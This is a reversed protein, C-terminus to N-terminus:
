SEILEINWSSIKSDFYSRLSGYRSRLKIDNSKLYNAHSQVVFKYAEEVWSRQVGDPVLRVSDGLVDLIRLKDHDYNILELCDSAEKRAWKAYITSSKLNRVANLYQYLSDGIIIRPYLTYDKELSYARVLAPGYIERKTLHVGLGVDIGCRFPKHAALAVLYIGCISYLAAYISTISLCHEDENSIPIAITITDSFSTIIAEAKRLKEAIVRKETPLSDLKGTSKNRAKFYSNFNNRLSMIYGATNHLILAANERETESFPLRELKLLEKSQGLVDIFAVFYNELTWKKVM